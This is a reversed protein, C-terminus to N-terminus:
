QAKMQDSLSLCPFQLIKYCASYVVQLDHSIVVPPLLGRLYHTDRERESFALGKNYHPNRLLSFGSYAFSCLINWHVYTFVVESIILHWVLAQTKKMLM